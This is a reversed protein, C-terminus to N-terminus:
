SSAWAQDPAVAAARKNSAVEKRILSQLIPLDSGMKSNTPPQENPITPTAPWGFGSGTESRVAKQMMEEPYAGKGYLEEEM